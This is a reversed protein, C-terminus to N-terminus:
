RKQHEDGTDKRGEAPLANQQKNLFNLCLM